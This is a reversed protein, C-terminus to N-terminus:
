EKLSQVEKKVEQLEAHQKELQELLEIQYLTLEEIKKLLRINMDGLDIGNEGIEAASPIEPLHKNHTIYDKIEKLTRLEYDSGFVYDPWNESLQVKVEEMMAKGDVAFKYEVPIVETGIGVQGGLNATFIAPNNGSDSLMEIEGVNIFYNNGAHVRAAGYIRYWQYSENNTFTFEYWQNLSTTELGSALTTWTGDSGNTSNNSAQITFNNFLLHEFTPRPHLRLKNVTLSSTLKYAIWADIITSSAETAWADKSDLYKNDFANQASYYQDFDSSSYATGGECLDTVEGRSIEFLSNPNSTGIGVNGSSPFTNQASATSWGLLLLIILRFKKM